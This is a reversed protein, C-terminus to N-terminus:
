WQWIFSDDFTGFDLDYIEGDEIILHYPCDPHIYDGDAIEWDEDHPDPIESPWGWDRDIFVLIWIEESWCGSGGFWRRDPPNQSNQRTCSRLESLDSSSYVNVSAAYEGDVWEGSYDAYINIDAQPSCEAPEIESEDPYSIFYVSDGSGCSIILFILLILCLLSKKM